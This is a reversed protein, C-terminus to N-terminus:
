AECLSIRINSGSYAKDGQGSSIFLHKILRKTWESSRVLLALVLNEVVLGNQSGERVLSIYGRPM